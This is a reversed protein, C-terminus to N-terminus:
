ISRRWHLSVDFFHAFASVELALVNIELTLANNSLASALFKNLFGVAGNITMVPLYPIESIRGSTFDILLAASAPLAFLGCACERM